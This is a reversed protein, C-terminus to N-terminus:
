RKNVIWWEDFEQNVQERGKRNLDEFRLELFLDSFQRNIAKMYGAKWAEWAMENDTVDTIVGTGKGRKGVNVVGSAFLRGCVPTM